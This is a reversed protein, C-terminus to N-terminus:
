IYVSKLICFLVVYLRLERLSESRGQGTLLSNSLCQPTLSMLVLCSPEVLLRASNGYGDPGQVGSQYPQFTGLGDRSCHVAAHQWDTVACVQRM